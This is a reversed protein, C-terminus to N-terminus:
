LSPPAVTALVYAPPWNKGPIHWEPPAPHAATPATSYAFVNGPDFGGLEGAIPRSAGAETPPLSYYQLPTYPPTFEYPDPTPTHVVKEITGVNIDVHGPDDSDVTVFDDLGQM